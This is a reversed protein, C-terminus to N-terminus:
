TNEEEQTKMYIKLGIAYKGSDPTIVPEQPIPLSIHYNRTVHDSKNSEKECYASINANEWLV